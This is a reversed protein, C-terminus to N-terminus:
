CLIYSCNVHIISKFFVHCCAAFYVNELMTCSCQGASMDPVKYYTTCGVVNNQCFFCKKQIVNTLSASWGVYCAIICVYAYYWLYLVTTTQNVYCLWNFYYLCYIPLLYLMIPHTRWLIVNYPLMAYCITTFKNIVIIWYNKNLLGYTTFNNLM